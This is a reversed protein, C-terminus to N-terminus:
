GPRRVTVVFDSGGPLEGEPRFLLGRTGTWRWAGPVRAGGKTAVALDPVHEDDAMEVGRVGRSFLVTVGPQKRDAVHGRPAAYVVAFPSRTRASGKSAM